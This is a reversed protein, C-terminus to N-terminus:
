IVEKFCNCKSCDDECLDCYSVTKVAKKKDPIANLICVIIYLVLGALSNIILFKKIM